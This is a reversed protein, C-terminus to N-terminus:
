KVAATLGYYDRLANKASEFREREREKKQKKPITAPWTAAARDFYWKENKKEGNRRLQLREFAIKCTFHILLMVWHRRRKNQTWHFHTHTHTDANLVAHCVNRMYINNKILNNGMKRYLRFGHIFLYSYIKRKRSRNTTNPIWDIRCQCQMLCVGIFRVIFQTCTNWQFYNTFFRYTFVM